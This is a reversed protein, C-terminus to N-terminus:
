FSREFTIKFGGNRAQEIFIEGTNPNPDNYFRLSSERHENKRDKNSLCFYSGLAIGAANFTLDSVEGYSDKMEKALGAFASITRGGIVIGTNGIPINVNRFACVLAGSFFVHKMSNNNVDQFSTNLRMFRLDVINTAQSFTPLIALASTALIKTFNIM